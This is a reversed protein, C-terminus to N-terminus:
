QCLENICVIANLTRPYGIYPLAQTVAVILTNKDNGANLNGRIHARVQPECGGIAALMCFTLLERDKLKLGNRTYFDGFCMASLYDQIHKQGDPANNHAQRMGEGFFKVQIDLGAEYRTDENVTSQAPLPLKIGEAEFVKNIATLVGTVKSLGMYPVCQYVAEKIEVPSVGTRLAARTHDSIGTMDQNATLVVITILECLRETLVDTHNRVDGYIFKDMIEMLEPDSQYLPSTISNMIRSYSSDAIVQRNNGQANIDQPISMATLLSLVIFFDM